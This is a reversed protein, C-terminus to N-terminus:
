KTFFGKLSSGNQKKKPNTEEYYGYGYGYGYSYGYGSGGYGYGYKKLFEVGNFIIAPNQIKGDKHLVDFM